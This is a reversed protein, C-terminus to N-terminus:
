PKEKATRQAPVKLQAIVADEAFQKLPIGIRAAEAKVLRHWEDHLYIKIEKM